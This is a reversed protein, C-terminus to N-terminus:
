KLNEKQQALFEKTLKIQKREDESLKDYLKIFAEIDKAKKDSPYNPNSVNASLRKEAALAKELPTKKPTAPKKEEKSPEEPKAEIPKVEETKKKTKSAAKPASGDAKPATAAKTKKPAAKAKEAKPKEEKVESQPATQKEEKKAPALKQETESVSPKKVTKAEEKATVVPELSAFAKFDRETKEVTIKLGKLNAVVKDGAKTLDSAPLKAVLVDKTVDAPGHIEKLYAISPDRVLVNLRKASAIAADVPTAGFDYFPRPTKIEAPKDEKKLLSPKIPKQEAKPAPVQKTEAPKAAPKEKPEVKSTPKKEIKTITKKQEKSKNQNFSHGELQGGANIKMVFLFRGNQSGLNNLKLLDQALDNDQTIILVRYHIRFLTAHALISPDAFTDGKSQQRKLYAPVRYKRQADKIITLARVADIRAENNHWDMNAAHKELEEICEVPTLILLDKKWYKKSGVLTDMFQPFGEGMLSCTDIIVRDYNSLVKALSSFQKEQSYM